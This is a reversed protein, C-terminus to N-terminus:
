ICLLLLFSKSYCLWVDGDTFVSFPQNCMVVQMTDKEAKAAISIIHYYATGLYEAFLLM